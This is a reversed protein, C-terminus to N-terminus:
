ETDGKSADLNGVPNLKPAPPFDIINQFAAMAALEMRNFHRGGKTQAAVDDGDFYATNNEVETFDELSRLNRKSGFSRQAFVGRLSVTEIRPRDKTRGCTRFVISSGPRIGRERPVFLM